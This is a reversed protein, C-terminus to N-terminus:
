LELEREDFGRRMSMLLATIESRGALNAAAIYKDTDGSLLGLRAIGSMAPINNYKIVWEMILEEYKHIFAEARDRADPGHREPCSCWLLTYQLMEHHRLGEPFGSAIYGEHLLDCCGFADSGVVTDEGPVEIKRLAECSFFAKEEILELGPPLIAEELATEGFAEERIIKLSEPFVVSKLNTCGFFAVEGIDTVGEPIVVSMLSEDQICAGETIRGDTILSDDIVTREMATM